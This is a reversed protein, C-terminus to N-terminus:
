RAKDLQQHVRTLAARSEESLREVRLLATRAIDLSANLRKIEDAAMVCTELDLKDWLNGPAYNAAMARLVYEQTEM